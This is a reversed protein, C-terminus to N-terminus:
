AGVDDGLALANLSRGLILALVCGLLLFPATAALVPWGRGDLTGAAWFRFEDFARQDLLIVTQVLSAITASVAVGALALRVPTAVSRGAAGLVYVVVAALAAGAFAFWLYFWIGVFGTVAVALVVALSAGANVGLLGPDALPNRTMAQMLAGAIGLGAGVTLGLLTRPVRLDNVIDSAYTGDPRGLLRLVEYPPLHSSGVLLSCVVVLALGLVALLLGARRSRGPSSDM